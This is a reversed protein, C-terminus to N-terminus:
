PRIPQEDDSDPGLGWDKLHRRILELRHRVAARTLGMASAIEAESESIRRVAIQRLEPTLARLADQVDIQSDIRDPTTADDMVLHDQGGGIRVDRRNDRRKATRHELINIVRNDAMSNVFGGRTGRSPDHQHTRPFVHLAIEQQIDDVDGARFGFHGALKRAKQKVIEADAPTFRQDWLERM